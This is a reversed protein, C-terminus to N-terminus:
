IRAYIEIPSRKGLPVFLSYNLTQTGTAGAQISWAGMSQLYAKVIIPTGDVWHGKGEFFMNGLTIPTANVGLSQWGSAAAKKKGRYNVVAGKMDTYFTLKGSSQTFQVQTNDAPAGTANVLHRRVNNAAVTSTGGLITAAFFSGAVLDPDTIENGAPIIETKIVPEEFAAEPSWTEGFALALNDASFYDFSLEGTYTTGTKIIGAPVPACEGNVTKNVVETTTEKAFTASAVNPEFLLPTTPSSGVPIM